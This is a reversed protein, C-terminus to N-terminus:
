PLQTAFRQVSDSVGRAPLGTQMPVPRTWRQKLPVMLRSAKSDHHRRVTINLDLQM